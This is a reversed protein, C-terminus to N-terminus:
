FKLFRYSDDKKFDYIMGNFQLKEKEMKNKVLNKSNINKELDGEIVDEYIFKKTVLLDSLGNTKGKSIIISTELIEIEHSGSCNSEGQTKRIPYEYLIKKLKNESLTIISFKQESYLFVCGGVSYETMLGIAKNQNNLVIKNKFIYTKSPQGAENDMFKLNEDNIHDIIKGNSNNVFLYKTYYENGDDYKNTIYRIVFFTTESNYNTSSSKYLYINSYKIKLNECVKSLLEKNLEDSYEREGHEEFIAQSYINFELFLFTIILLKMKM